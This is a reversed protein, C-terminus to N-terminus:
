GPLLGAYQREYDTFRKWFPPPIVNNAQIDHKRRPM